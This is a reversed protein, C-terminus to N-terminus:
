YFKLAGTISDDSTELFTIFHIIRTRWECSVENLDRGFNMHNKTIKDVVLFSPFLENLKLM